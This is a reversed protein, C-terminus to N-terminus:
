YLKGHKFARMSNYKLKAEMHGQIDINNAGCFDMLRILTDALEDEITDKIDREFIAKYEEPTTYMAENGIITRPSVKAHRGKRDAEVAESLEGVILMLSTPLPQVQVNADFGRSKNGAYIEAALQNLDM